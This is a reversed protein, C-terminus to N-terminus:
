EYNQPMKAWIQREECYISNPIHSCAWRRVQEIELAESRCFGCLLGSMVFTMGPKKRCRLRLVSRLNSTIGTCGGVSKTM